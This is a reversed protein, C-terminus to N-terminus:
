RVCAPCLAFWVVVAIFMLTVITVWVNGITKWRNFWIKGNVGLTQFASWFGHSLHFWLAVLWIIYIISYVPCAFTQKIHYIGDAAYLASLEDGVLEAFMMNYWFNYLHLLLGLAVIIGLVLMNQSAWEVKAPKDTVAYRSSGRAKRNQLTLIIAYVFHIVVLAALVATAAVAYWNAGLFECIANYGEESILAVVNMCAHFTLFLILAIGTVSMLVKKGISSNTLWM